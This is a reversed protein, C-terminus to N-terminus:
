RSNPLTLNRGDALADIDDGAQHHSWISAVPIATGDIIPRGRFVRKSSNRSRKESKPPSSVPKTPYFTVQGGDKTWPYHSKRRNRTRWRKVEAIVSEGASSAAGDPPAMRACGSSAASRKPSSRPHPIVSRRTRGCKTTTAGGPRSRRERADALDLFCNENRASLNCSVSQWQLSEIFGNEM